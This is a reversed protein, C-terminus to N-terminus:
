EKVRRVVEPLKCIYNIGNIDISEDQALAKICFLYNQVETLSLPTNDRENFKKQFYDILGNSENIGAIDLFRSIQRIYDECLAGNDNLNHVLYVISPHLLEFANPHNSIYSKFKTEDLNQLVLQAYNISELVSTRTRKYNM